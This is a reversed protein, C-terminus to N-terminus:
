VYHEIIFCLWDIFSFFYDFEKLILLFFLFLITKIKNDIISMKLLDVKQNLLTISFFGIFSKKFVFM